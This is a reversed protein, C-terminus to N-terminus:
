QLEVFVDDGDVTVLYTPEAPIPRMYEGQGTRLDFISGHGACTVFNGELEGESLDWEQHTCIAGIARFRGEINAILVDEGEVEFTKMTGPPIDSVSSVQVRRVM